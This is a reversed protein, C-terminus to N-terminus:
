RTNKLKSTSYGNKREHANLNYGIQVMCDTFVQVNLVGLCVQLLSSPLSMKFHINRFQQRFYQIRVLSIKKGLKSYKNKDTKAVEYTTVM